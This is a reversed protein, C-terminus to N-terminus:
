RPHEKEIRKLRDSVRRWRELLIKAVPDGTDTAEDFMSEYEANLVELIGCRDSDVDNGKLYADALHNVHIREDRETKM